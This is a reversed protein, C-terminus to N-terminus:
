IDTQVDRQDLDKVRQRLEVLNTEPTPL